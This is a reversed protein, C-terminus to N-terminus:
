VEHPVETHRVPATRDKSPAAAPRDRRLVEKREEYEATNIEGRAFRRQLIALPDDYLRARGRPVPTALSFFTIALAVWFLWWLAHMGWFSWYYM